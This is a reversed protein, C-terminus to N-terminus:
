YPRRRAYYGGMFKSAVRATVDGAVGSYPAVEKKYDDWIGVLSLKMGAPNWICGSAVDWGYYWDISMRKGGQYPCIEIGNAHKAVERWDVMENAMWGEAETGVSFEEHFKQLEDGSNIKFIKSKPIKVLYIYNIDKGWHPMEGEMWTIWGKDCDYWLGKPKYGVKQAFSGSLRPIPKKSVHIKVDAPLRGIFSKIKKIKNAVRKRSATVSRWVHTVHDHTTPRNFDLEEIVGRARATLALAKKQFGLSNVFQAIDEYHAMGEENFVVRLAVVMKEGDYSGRKQFYPHRGISVGKMNKMKIEKILRQEAKKIPNRLKDFNQETAKM